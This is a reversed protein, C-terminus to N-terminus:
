AEAPDPGWYGAQESFTILDQWPGLLGDETVGYYVQLSADPKRLVVDFRMAGAREGRRWLGIPLDPHWVVESVSPMGHEHQLIAYHWLRRASQRTVNHVTSLNRLDRVTHYKVGGRVDSDVIEVGTSPPEIDVRQSSLQASTSESATESGKKKRRSRGSKGETAAAKEEAAPEAAPKAEMVPEPSSATEATAKTGKGRRSRGRALPKAQAEGAQELESPLQPGPEIEAETLLAAMGANSAAAAATPAEIEMEEAQKAAASRRGRKRPKEAEALLVLEERTLHQAAVTAEMDPTEASAEPATATTLM